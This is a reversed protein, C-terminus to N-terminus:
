TCLLNYTAWDEYRIIANGEDDTGGWMPGALGEFKPQAQLELRLHKGIEDGRYKFGRDEFAGIPDAADIIEAKRALATVIQYKTM